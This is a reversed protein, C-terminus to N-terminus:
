ADGQPQGRVEAADAARSILTAFGRARAPDMVATWMRGTASRITVHVKGDVEEATVGASM